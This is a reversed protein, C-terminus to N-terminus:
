MDDLSAGTYPDYGVGSDRIFDDRETDENFERDDEMDESGYEASIIEDAMKDMKSKGSNRKRRVKKPKDVVVKKEEPEKTPEDFLSPQVYSTSQRKKYTSRVYTPNSLRYMSDIIESLRRKLEEKFKGESGEDIITELMGRIDYIEYDGGVWAEQFKIACFNALGKGGIREIMDTICDAVVADGRSPFAPIKSRKKGVIEKLLRYQQSMALALADLRYYAM